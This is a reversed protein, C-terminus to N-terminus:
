ISEEDKTDEFVHEDFEEKSLGRLCLTDDVFGQWWDACEDYGGAASTNSVVLWYSLGLIPFRRRVGLATLKRVHRSLSEAAADSLETLGTLWLTRKHKSLSEAAVDSLETLGNLNLNFGKHKSLSKAAADSLETLGNLWLGGGIPNPREAPWSLNASWSGEGGGAQGYWSSHWQVWRRGGNWPATGRCAPKHQSLSEAAADSLETLGNLGLEGVNKGLSEAAADSLETLGNLSLHYWKGHNRYAGSLIEAAADSLETLGDLYLYLYDCKSLSEAADDEIATFKSIEVSDEDALFQEALEKTLVKEDSVVNGRRLLGLTKWRGM